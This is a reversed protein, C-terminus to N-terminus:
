VSRRDEKTVPVAQDFVAHREKADQPDCTPLCQLIILCISYIWPFSSFTFGNEFCDVDIHSFGWNLYM